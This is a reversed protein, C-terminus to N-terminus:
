APREDILERKHVELEIDYLQSEPLCLQHAELAASRKPDWLSEPLTRNAEPAILRSAARAREANVKWWDVFDDRAREAATAEGLAAYAECICRTADVAWM